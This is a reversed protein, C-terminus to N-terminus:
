HSNWTGNYIKLEDTSPKYWQMGSRPAEPTTESVIYLDAKKWLEDFESNLEQNQHNFKKPM